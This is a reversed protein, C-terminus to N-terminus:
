PLPVDKLAFTRREETKPTKLRVELRWDPGPGRHTSSLVTLGQQHSRGTTRDEGSADLLAMEVVRSEPDDIKLVVDGEEPAFFAGAFASAMSELMEGLVGHKRAEEKREDTQRKKEAELQEETLMAISVGSASLAPNELRKGARAAINSITAVANPDRGPLYLEVDGSVEKLTRARRAPSRLRLALVAPAPKGDPGASRGQRVPELSAKSDDEPVLDRGTDDIAKSVHLRGAAVEAAPFDPLELEIELRSSDSGRIDGLSVVSVRTARARPESAKGEGALAPLAALLLAAVFPAGARKTDLANRLVPTM